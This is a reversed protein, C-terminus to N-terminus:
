MTIIEGGELYNRLFKETILMFPKNDVYLVNTRSIFKGTRVGFHPLLESNEEEKYGLLQRFPTIKYAKLLHGLPILSTLLDQAFGSPPLLGLDILSRAYMMVKHSNNAVLLSERFLLQASDNFYPLDPHAQLFQEKIKHIVIKEGSYAELIETLTADCVVVIREIVTLQQLLPYGLGVPSLNEIDRLFAAFM